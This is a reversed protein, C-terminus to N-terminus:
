EVHLDVNERRTRKEEGATDDHSDQAKRKSVLQKARATNETKTNAVRLARDKPDYCTNNKIIYVVNVSVREILEGVWNCQRLRPDRREIEVNLSPPSPAQVNSADQKHWCTTSYM